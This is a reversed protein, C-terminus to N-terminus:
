INRHSEYLNKVLIVIKKGDLVKAVSSIRLLDIATSLVYILIVIVLSYIIFLITPQKLLMSADIIKQWLIPSFYGNDHILYVGFSASACKNIFSSYRPKKTLVVMFIGTAAILLLISNGGLFHVAHNVLTWIKFYSGLADLILVSVLAVIIGSWSLILGSKKLDIENGYLRIYAGICYLLVFLLTPSNDLDARILSPLASSVAMLMLILISLKKKNISKILRNLFPSFLYILMYSTAFWYQNYIIPFFAKIFKIISFPINKTLVLVAFIVFSYFWVQLDLILVKEIKFSSNVLFYGTIIVFIDVGLKGGIMMFQGLIQNVSPASHWNSDSILFGHVSLHHIVILFMSVIRLFEINSNRSNKKRIM